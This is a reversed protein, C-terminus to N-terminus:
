NIYVAVPITNIDVRSVLHSQMGPLSLNYMILCYSTKTLKINAALNPFDSWSNDNFLQIEVPNIIKKLYLGEKPIIVVGTILNEIEKKMDIELNSSSRYQTKITHKGMQLQSVFGTTIGPRDLYGQIMRSSIQSNDDLVLRLALRNKVSLGSIMSYCIVFVDSNAVFDISGSSFYSWGSNVQVNEITYNSYRVFVKKMPDDPKKINVKISSARDAILRLLEPDTPAKLLMATNVLSKDIVQSNDLQAKFDQSKYDAQKTFKPLNNVQINSSEMLITWMDTKFHSIGNVACIKFSDSTGPCSIYNLAEFPINTVDSTIPSLLGGAIVSRVIECM